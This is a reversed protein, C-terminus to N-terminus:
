IVSAEWGGNARDNAPPQIAVLYQQERRALVLEDVRAVAGMALLGELAEGAGFPEIAFGELAEDVGMAM